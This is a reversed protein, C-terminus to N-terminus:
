QKCRNAVSHLPHFAALDSTSPRPIAGFSEVWKEREACDTCTRSGPQSSKFGLSKARSVVYEGARAQACHGKKWSCRVWAEELVRLLTQSGTRVDMQVGAARRLRTRDQVRRRPRQARKDILCSRACSGPECFRVSSSRSLKYGETGEFWM